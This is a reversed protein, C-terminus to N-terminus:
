QPLGKTESKNPMIVGDYIADSNLLAINSLRAFGTNHSSSSEAYDAKLCLRDSYASPYKYDFDGFEKNFLQIGQTAKDIEKISVEEIDQNDSTYGEPVGYYLTTCLGLSTFGEVNSKKKFYLRFNKIPYAM